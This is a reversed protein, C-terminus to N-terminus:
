WLVVQISELSLCGSYLRPPAGCDHRGARNSTGTRRRISGFTPKNGSAVNPHVKWLWPWITDRKVSVLSNYRVHYLGAKKGIKERDTSSSM